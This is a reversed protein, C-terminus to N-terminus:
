RLLVTIKVSKLEGESFASGLLYLGSYIWSAGEEARRRLAEFDPSVKGWRQYGGLQTLNSTADSTFDASRGVDSVVFNTCDWRREQINKNVSVYDPGCLCIFEVEFGDAATTKILQKQFKEWDAESYEFVWCSPAPGLGYEGRWLTVRQSKTLMLTGPRASFKLRLRDDDIPLIIAAIINADRGSNNLAQHLLASHGNHPPNFAGPYLLIRCVQGSKLIPAEHAIGYDFIPERPFHSQNYLIKEIYPSLGASTSSM